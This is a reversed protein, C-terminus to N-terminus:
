NSNAECDQQESYKTKDELRTAREQRPRRGERLGVTGRGLGVERGVIGLGRAFQLDNEVFPNFVELRMSATEAKSPDSETCATLSSAQSVQIQGFGGSSSQRALLLQTVKKVGNKTVFVGVITWVQGRYNWKSWVFYPSSYKATRGKGTKRVVAQISMADKNAKKSGKPYVRNCFGYAVYARSFSAASSKKLKM